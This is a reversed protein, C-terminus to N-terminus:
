GQWHTSWHTLSHTPRHNLTESQLNSDCRQAKRAQQLHPWSSLLKWNKFLHSPPWHHQLQNHHPPIHHHRHHCHPHGHHTISIDFWSFNHYAGDRKVTKYLYPSITLFDINQLQKTRWFITIPYVTRTGLVWGPGMVHVFLAYFGSLQPPYDQYSISEPNGVEPNGGLPSDQPPSDQSYDRSKLSKPQCM